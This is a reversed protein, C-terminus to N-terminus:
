ETSKNRRFNLRSLVQQRSNQMAALDATAKSDVDNNRRSSAFTVAESAVTAGGHITSITGLDGLGASRDLMAELRKIKTKLM